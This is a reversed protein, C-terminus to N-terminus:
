MEWGSQAADTITNFIKGTNKNSNSLQELQNLTGGVLDTGRACESLSSSSSELENEFSQDNFSESASIEVKSAHHGTNEISMEQETSCTQSNIGISNTAM